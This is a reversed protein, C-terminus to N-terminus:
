NLVKEAYLDVDRAWKDAAAQGGTVSCDSGCKWVLMDKASEADNREIIEDIRRSVVNVAERPSDFCTHGGSGMRERQARFGWYNYCDQGDLVPRRKGWNSEKKAIGILYAATVRDKSAIYPIMQEIPHNKVIVRLDKKLQEKKIDKSPRVQFPEDHSLFIKHCSQQFLIVFGTFAISFVLITVQVQNRSLAGSQVSKKVYKYFAQYKQLIYRLYASKGSIAMKLLKNMKQKLKLM